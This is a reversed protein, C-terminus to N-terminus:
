GPAATRRHALSSIPAPQQRLSGMGLSVTMPSSLLRAEAPEPPSLDLRYTRDIEWSASAFLVAIFLVSLWVINSPAASGPSIAMGSPGLHTVPALYMYLMSYGMVSHTVVHSGHHWHDGRGGRSGHRVLFGLAAFSFRAAVGCFVVAWVGDPLPNLTPVLMGAMATGMLVHTVEVDYHLKRNWGRGVVLRGIAFLSNALMVGALVNAFPTPGPMM